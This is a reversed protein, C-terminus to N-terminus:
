KKMEEIRFQDLFLTSDKGYILRFSIGKLKAGKPDKFPVIFPIEEWQDTHILEYGGNLYCTKGTVTRGMPVLDLRGKGKVSLIIKLKTNDKVRVDGRNFYFVQKGRTVVKLCKGKKGGPVFEYTGGGDFQNCAPNKFWRGRNEFSEKLLIKNGQAFLMGAATLLFFVLLKKM